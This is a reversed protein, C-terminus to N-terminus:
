RSTDGRREQQYRDYPVVEPRPHAPMSSEVAQNQFRLSYYVARAFQDTSCGALLAASCALTAALPTKMAPLM